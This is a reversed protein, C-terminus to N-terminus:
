RVSTMLLFEATIAFHECIKFSGLTPVWFPYLLNTSSGLKVPDRIDPVPYQICTCMINRPIGQYKMPKRELM